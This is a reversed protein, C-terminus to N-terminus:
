RPQEEHRARMDALARLTEPTWQPRGEVTATALIRRATLRPRPTIPPLQPLAPPNAGGIFEIPTTATLM